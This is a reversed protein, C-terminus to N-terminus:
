PNCITGEQCTDEDLLDGDYVRVEIDAGDDIFASDLPVTVTGGSTSLTRSTIVQGDPDQAEVLVDDNEADSFTATVNVGTGGHARGCGSDTCGSADIETITASAPVWDLTDSLSFTSESGGGSGALVRVTVSEGAAQANLNSTDVNTGNLNVTNSGVDFVLIARDGDTLVNSSSLSNDDDVVPHVGFEIGGSNARDRHITHVIQDDTIIQITAESLNISSAGSALMVSVNFVESGDSSVHEEAMVGTVLVRDSTQSTSEQGTEESQSQLYGASDLLAGAAIAAVLVMGIFVILTGIGVQSRQERGLGM